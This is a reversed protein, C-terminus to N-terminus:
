QYDGDFDGHFYGGDFEQHTQEEFVDFQYAKYQTSHVGFGVRHLTMHSFLVAKAEHGFLFSFDPYDTRVYFQYFKGPKVNFSLSVKSERKTYEIRVIEKGRRQYRTQLFDADDEQDKPLYHEVVAVETNYVGGYLTVGCTFTM